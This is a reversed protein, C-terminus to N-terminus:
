RRPACAMRSWTPMREKGGMLSLKGPHRSAALHTTRRPLQKQMELTRKKMRPQQQPLKLALRLVPLLMFVQSKLDLLCEAVHGAAKRNRLAHHLVKAGEAGKSNMQLAWASLFATTLATAAHDAM